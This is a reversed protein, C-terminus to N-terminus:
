SRRSLQSLCTAIQARYRAPAFRRAAADAEAALQPQLEDWREVAFTIAECLADVSDPAFRIATAVGETAERLGSTDSVLVVRAALTGEVATNGFPEDLRSPVVVVAADEVAHWVDPRFGLLRVREGLAHDAIRRRLDQEYWEYGPFVAGILDVHIRPDRLRALAEILLDPGKRPSLRGIYALRVIDGLDAPPPSVAPPGAVGNYVVQAREALRPFAQRLVDRSFESNVVIATVGAAPAYIAWKVLRSAGQEGEHLHLLSPVRAFRTVLPWLPLTMTSIYVADPQVQRLVRRSARLGRAAARISAIGNKPRLLSKRLVLAPDFRVTAGAGVLLDVLPGTEPLTVTVEASGEILAVVTELMVRDSGYLEAGPHAILYRLPGPRRVRM